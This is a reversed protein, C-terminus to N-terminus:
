HMRRVIRKKKKKFVKSDDSSAAGFDGKRGLVASAMGLAVDVVDEEVVTEKVEGSHEDQSPVPTVPPEDEWTLARSAEKSLLDAEERLSYLRWRSDAERYAATTIGPLESGKM